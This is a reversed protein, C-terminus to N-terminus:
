RMMVPTSPMVSSRMLPARTARSASSYLPGRPASRRLGLGMVIRVDMFMRADSENSNRGCQCWGGSEEGGGMGLGGSWGSGEEGGGEGVRAWWGVQEWSVRGAGGRGGAFEVVV